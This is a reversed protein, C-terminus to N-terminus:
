EEPATLLKRINVLERLAQAIMLAGTYARAQAQENDEAPEVGLLELLCEAGVGVDRGAEARLAVIKGRARRAARRRPAFVSRRM